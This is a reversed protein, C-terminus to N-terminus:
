KKKLKWGSPCKKATFNKTQKGKVCTVTKAAPKTARTPTATPTASPTATPTPAASPLYGIPFKAIATKAAENSLHESEYEGTADRGCMAIIEATGHPHQSIWTTLDYVRGRVVSWCDTEVDHKSVEELTYVTDAASAPALSAFVLVLGGAVTGIRM